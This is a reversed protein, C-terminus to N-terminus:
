VYNYDKYEPEDDVSIRNVCDERYTTGDDTYQGTTENFTRYCKVIDSEGYRPPDNNQPKGPSGEPPDYTHINDSPPLEIIFMDWGSHEIESSTMKDPLPEGDHPDLDWIAESLVMSAPLYQHTMKATIIDGRSHGPITDYMKAWGDATGMFVKSTYEGNKYINMWAVPMVVLVHDDPNKMLADYVSMPEDTSSAMTNGFSGQNALYLYYPMGTIDDEYELWERVEYGNTRFDGGNGSTLVPYPMDPDTIKHQLALTGFKSKSVLGSTDSIVKGGGDKVVLLGATEPIGENKGAFYMFVGTKTEHAAGPHSKSSNHKNQTQGGNVGGGESANVISTCLLCAMFVAM